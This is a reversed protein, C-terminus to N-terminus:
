YVTHPSTGRERKIKDKRKKGWHRKNQPSSGQWQPHEMKGETGRAFTSIIGNSSSGPDPFFSLVFLCLSSRHSGMILNATNTGSWGRGACGALM